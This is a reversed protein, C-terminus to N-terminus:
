YTLIKVNTAKHSETPCVRVGLWKMEENWKLLHLMNETIELQDIQCIFHVSVLSAM